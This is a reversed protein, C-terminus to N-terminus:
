CPKGAQLSPASTIGVPLAYVLVPQSGFHPDVITKVTFGRWPRVLRRSEDHRGPYGLTLVIQDYTKGELRKAWYPTCLRYEEAKLGDKIQNFYVAKLSLTLTRM